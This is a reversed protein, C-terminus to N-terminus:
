PRWPFSYLVCEFSRKKLNLSPVFGVGSTLAMSVPGAFVTWKATWSDVTISLVSKLKRAGCVLRPKERLRKGVAIGWVVFGCPFRASRAPGCNVGSPSIHRINHLMQM